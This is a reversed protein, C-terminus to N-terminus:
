NRQAGGEEDRFRLLLAELQNLAEQEDPGIAELVVRAGCDLDASLVELISAASFNEDGKCITIKSKFQDRVPCFAVGTARAVLKNVIEVEKHATIEGVGLARCAGRLRLNFARNSFPAGSYGAFVFQSGAFNIGGPAVIRRGKFGEQVGKWELLATSLRGPVPV